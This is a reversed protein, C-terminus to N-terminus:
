TNLNVTKYITEILKHIEKPHYMSVISDNFIEGTKFEAEDDWVLHVWGSVSELEFNANPIVSNLKSLAKNIKIETIKNM